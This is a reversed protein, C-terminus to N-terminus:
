TTRMSEEMAWSYKINKERHNKVLWNTDISADIKKNTNNNNNTPMLPLIIHKSSWLNCDLHGYFNFLFFGMSPSPHGDFVFCVVWPPSIRFQFVFVLARVCQRSQGCLFRFNLIRNKLMASLFRTSFFVCRLGSRIRPLHPTQECNWMCYIHKTWMMCECLTTGLHFPSFDKREDSHLAFGYQENLTIIKIKKRRWKWCFDREWDYTCDCVAVTVRFIKKESHCKTRSGDSVSERTFTRNYYLIVHWIWNVLVSRVM